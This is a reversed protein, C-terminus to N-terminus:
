DRSRNTSTVPVRARQHGAFVAIPKDSHIYSGTLDNNMQIDLIEAQVLYCEGKNLVIQFPLTSPHMYTHTKPFIDVTTSDEVAVVIFQSPTRSAKSAQGDDSYYSMIFYDYGLVDTPMVLMADSTTEARNLTYVNIDKESSIHFTRHIPTETEHQEWNSNIDNYGIIECSIAPIGFKYVQNIDTIVFNHIHLASSTDYYEIVGSTPEDAAIYIYISDALLKQENYPNKNNHYNPPFAFWFDNGKTDFFIEAHLTVTQLLLCFLVAKLFFYKAEM